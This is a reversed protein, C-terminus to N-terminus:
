KIVAPFIGLINCVPVFNTTDNYPLWQIYLFINELSYPPFILNFVQLYVEKLLCSTICGLYFM